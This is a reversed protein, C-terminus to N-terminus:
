AVRKEQMAEPEGVAEAPVALGPVPVEITCRVGSEPYAFRVTGGVREFSTTILRTGFGLRQPPAVPPGGRETWALRLLPDPEAARVSWAVDVEGAGNSLAGYKAANTTLEHVVLGFSLALGPPLDISPGTLQVRSADDQLYPALEAKLLDTLGAAAWDTETLLAYTSSLAMLREDFSAGFATLDPASRLTQRAISQVTALTNKVRHNLEAVLVEKQKLAEELEATREHVRRELEESRAQQRTFWEAAWAALVAIMAFAVAALALYVWLRARWPALVAEMPVGILSVMRYGPSRRFVYLTERGSATSPAVFTGEPTGEGISAPDWEVPVPQDPADSPERFLPQRNADLLWLAMTPRIRLRGYLDGFQAQSVDVTVFGRYPEDPAGLRRTIKIQPTNASLSRAVYAISLREPHAQVARVYDRTAANLRPAPFGHSTLVSNGAADGIWIASVYPSRAQLERIREWTARDTGIPGAAPSAIAAAHSIVLDANEVIRDAHDALVTALTHAESRAQEVTATRDRLLLAAVVLLVVGAALVGAGGALLRVARRRDGPSRRGRAASGASEPFSQAM